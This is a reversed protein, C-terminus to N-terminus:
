ESQNNKAWAKEFELMKKEAETFNTEGAKERCIMCIGSDYVTGAGPGPAIPIGFHNCVLVRM